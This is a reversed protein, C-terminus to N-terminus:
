PSLVAGGIIIIIIIIIIITLNPIIRFGCLIQKFFRLLDFGSNFNGNRALWPLISTPLQFGCGQIDQGV